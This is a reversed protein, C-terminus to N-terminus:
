CTSASLARIDIKIAYSANYELSEGGHRLPNCLPAMRWQSDINEVMKRGRERERMNMLSYLSPWMNSKTAYGLRGLGSLYSIYIDMLQIQFMLNFEHTDLKNENM